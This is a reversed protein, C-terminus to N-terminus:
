REPAGYYLPLGTEAEALTCSEEFADRFSADARHLSVFFTVQGGVRARYRLRVPIQYLPGARFIPIAIIFGGPIKLPAGGGDKHEEAYSLTGEGSAANQVQVIKAEVNVNLNRSLELIRQPGALSLGLEAALAKTGDGVKSVDLIDLLHTELFEALDGQQISQGELANWAAWETSVPFAYVGRHDGFRPGASNEAGREHYNLVSTLTPSKPDDKAFLASHEDAFRKAHAIFSELTRLESTGKRREPAELFEDLLPKLSKVEKGKPLVIVPVQEPGDPRDVNVITHVGLREVADIIAQNNTPKEM